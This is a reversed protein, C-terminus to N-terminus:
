DFNSENKVEELARLFSANMEVTSIAVRIGKLQSHIFNSLPRVYFGKELLKKIIQFEQETQIIYYNAEGMIYDMKLEDLKEVITKKEKSLLERLPDLDFDMAKELAELAVQNISWPPRRKMLFQIIEEPAYIAGIRLGAIGYVKTLSELVILSGSKGIHSRLSYSENTFLSFSEDVFIKPKKNETKRLLSEIDQYTGTPNNPNGMIVLDMDDLQEIPINKIDYDNGLDFYSINADYAEFAEQYGSYTPTLILVKKNSYYSALLYLGQSAGNLMLTMEPKMNRHKAWKETMGKSSRDPYHSYNNIPCIETQNINHSLSMINKEIEVGYYKLAYSIDDGHIKSSFIEM